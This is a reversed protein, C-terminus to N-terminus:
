KAALLISHFLIFCSSVLHFWIFGSSVLHFGIFGSSVRHFVCTCHPTADYSAKHKFTLKRLLARNNNARTRFFVQLKLNPQTNRSRARIGLSNQNVVCKMSKKGVELKQGPLVCKKESIAMACLNEKRSFRAIVGILAGVQFKTEEENQHQSRISFESSFINKGPRSSNQEASWPGASRM